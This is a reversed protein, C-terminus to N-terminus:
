QQWKSRGSRVQDLVARRIVCAGLSHGVLVVQSYKWSKPRLYAAEYSRISQNVVGVINKGILLEDLFGQLEAANDSATGKLSPYGFRIVDYGTAERRLCLRDPLDGWTTIAAGKFGHVFVLLRGAPRKSWRAKTGTGFPLELPPLHSESFSADTVM